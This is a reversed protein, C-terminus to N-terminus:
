RIAHAKPSKIEEHDVKVEQAPAATDALKDKRTDIERIDAM